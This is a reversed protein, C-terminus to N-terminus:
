PSRDPKRRGEQIEGQDPPGQVARSESLSFNPGGQVTEEPDLYM